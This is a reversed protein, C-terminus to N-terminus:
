GILPLLVGRALQIDPKSWSDQIRLSRHMQNFPLACSLHLCVRISKRNGVAGEIIGDLWALVDDDRCFRRIVLGVLKGDSNRFIMSTDEDIEPALKNPDLELM